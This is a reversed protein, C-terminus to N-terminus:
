KGEPNDFWAGGIKYYPKGGVVRTMTTKAAAGPARGGPTRKVALSGAVRRDIKALDAANRASIVAESNAYGPIAREVIKAIDADSMTPNYQKLVNINEQLPTPKALPAQPQQVMQFSGTDPDGFGVAGNQLPLFQGRSQKAQMAQLQAQQMRESNDDLRAQRNQRNHAIGIFPGYALLDAATALVGALGKPKNRGIPTPAAQAEGHMPPAFPVIPVGAVQDLLGM